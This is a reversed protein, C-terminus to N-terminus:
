KTAEKAARCAALYAVAHRGINHVTHFVSLIFMAFMTEILWSTNFWRVLTGYEAFKLSKLFYTYFIPITIAFIALSCLNIFIKYIPRAKPGRFLHEELIDVTTHAEERTTMAIILFVTFVFFYLVLDSLWMIEYHLWYRNLVQAFTLVTALILGLSCLLNELFTIADVLGLYIKKM